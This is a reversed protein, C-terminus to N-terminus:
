NQSLAIMGKLLRDRCLYNLIDEKDGESMYWDEISEEAEELLQPSFSTFPSFRGFIDLIPHCYLPFYNVRFAFRLFGLACFLLGKFVFISVCYNVKDCQRKLKSTEASTANWLDEPIGLEVKVGKM